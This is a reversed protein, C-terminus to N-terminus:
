FVLLATLRHVLSVPANHEDSCTSTNQLDTIVSGMNDARKEAEAKAKKLAVKEEKMAKKEEAQKIADEDLQM